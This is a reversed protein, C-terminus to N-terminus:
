EFFISIFSIPFFLESLGIDHKILLIIIIRISRSRKIFLRFGEYIYFIIIKGNFSTKILQFDGNRLCKKGTLLLVQLVKNAQIFTFDYNTCSTFHVMVWLILNIM